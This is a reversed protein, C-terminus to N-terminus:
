EAPEAVLRGRTIARLSVILVGALVLGGGFLLRPGPRDGWVLVGLAVALVPTLLLYPTVMSVPYRQVLWYLLGHGVISAGLASYFVGAWHVWNASTLLPWAPAEIAWSVLLLPPVGLVATWAQLQFTHIGTLGRMLTTGLALALAAGLCLLLAAPADLVIPDFGLVLVGTFAIAVGAAARWRIREGLLLVALLATMPVYSQMAIAVSSIDGAMRLAAFNLAFHIASNLLAVAAFRPRMTRPVPKLFPLLVTLVLALRLATFLFAPFHQLSKASALFNIAWAVCIALVLLLHSPRLTM